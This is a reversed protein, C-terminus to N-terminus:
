RKPKTKAALDYNKCVCFKDMSPWKPLVCKSQGKYPDHRTVDAVDLSLEEKENENGDNASKVSDDNKEGRRKVEIWGTFTGIPSLIITM